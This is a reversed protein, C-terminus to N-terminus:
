IKTSTAVNQDINARSSVSLNCRDKFFTKTLHSGPEFDVTFGDVVTNWPFILIVGDVGINPLNWRKACYQFHSSHTYTCQMLLHDIQTHMDEQKALCYLHSWDQHVPSKPLCLLTVEQTTQHDMSTANPLYLHRFLLQHISHWSRNVRLHNSMPIWSVSHENNEVLRQLPLLSHSSSIYTNKKISEVLKNKM